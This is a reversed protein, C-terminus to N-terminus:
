GSKEAHVGDVRDPVTKSHDVLVFAFVYMLVTLLLMICAHPIYNTGSEKEGSM